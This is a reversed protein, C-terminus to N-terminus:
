SGWIEVLSQNTTVFHYRGEQQTDSFLYYGIEFGIDFPHYFYTYIIKDGKNMTKVEFAIHRERCGKWM